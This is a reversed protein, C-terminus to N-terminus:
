GHGCRSARYVGASLLETEQTDFEWLAYLYLEFDWVANMHATLQQTFEAFSTPPMWVDVRRIALGDGNEWHRIASQAFQLTEKNKMM